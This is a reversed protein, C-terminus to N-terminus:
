IPRGIGASLVSLGVLPFSHIFQCFQFGINRWTHSISLWIGFLFSWHGGSHLRLWRRIAPPSAHLTDPLKRYSFSFCLKRLRFGLLCIPAHCYLEMCKKSWCHISTFSSRWAEATKDFHFCDETGVPYSPSQSSFDTQVSQLLTFDRKRAAFRLVIGWTGLM